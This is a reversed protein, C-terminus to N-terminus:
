GLLNLLLIQILPLMLAILMPLALRIYTSTFRKSRLLWLTALSSLVIGLLAFLVFGVRGPVPGVLGAILILYTFLIQYLVPFCLSSLHRFERSESSEPLPTSARDFDRFLGASM